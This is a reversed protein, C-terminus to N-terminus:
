KLIALSRMSWMQATFINCLSLSGFAWWFDLVPLLAEGCIRAWTWIKLRPASLKPSFFCIWASFKPLYVLMIKTSTSYRVAKSELAHRMGCVISIKTVSSHWRSPLWQTSTLRTLGAAKSLMPDVWQSLKMSCWVRLICNHWFRPKSAVSSSHLVKTM